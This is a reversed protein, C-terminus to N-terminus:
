QTRRPDRMVEMSLGEVLGCLAVIGPPPAGFATALPGFLACCLALAAALGLRAGNRRVRRQIKIM